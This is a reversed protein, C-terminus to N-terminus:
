AEDGDADPRGAPPRARVVMRTGSRPRLTIAPTLELVEGPAPEVRHYRALTALVLVPEMTALHNGICVWSGDGFPIDVGRRLRRALDGAWRDPRFSDSDDWWRPDRHVVWPSIVPPTRKASGTAGPHVAPGRGDM